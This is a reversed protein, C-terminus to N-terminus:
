KPFDNNRCSTASGSMGGWAALLAIGVALAFGGIEAVVKWASKTEKASAPDPAPKPISPTMQGALRQM